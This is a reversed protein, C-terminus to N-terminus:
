SEGGRSELNEGIFAHLGKPWDALPSILAREIRPTHFIRAVEALAARAAAENGMDRAWLARVLGVLPSGAHRPSLDSLFSSLEATDRKARFAEALLAASFGSPALEYLRKAL